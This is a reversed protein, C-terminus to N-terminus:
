ENMARGTSSWDSYDGSDATTNWHGQAAGERQKEMKMM